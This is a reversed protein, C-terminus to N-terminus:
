IIVYTWDSSESSTDIKTGYKIAEIYVSHMDLSVIEILLLVSFNWLVMQISRKIFNVSERTRLWRM